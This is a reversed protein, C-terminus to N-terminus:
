PEAGAPAGKRSRQGSMAEPAASATEPTASAGVTVIVLRQLWPIRWALARVEDPAIAAFDDAHADIYGPKEGAAMELTLENALDAQRILGRLYEGALAAKAEAVEDDTPPREALEKFQQRVLDVAGDVAAPAAGFSGSLETMFSYSDLTSGISYAIGRKERIEHYLRSTFASGGLTYNLLEAALRERRDLGPLAVGFVVQALSSNMAVDRRAARTPPPPAIPLPPEGQRLDAFVKDVLPGLEAPTIDGVASLSLRSRVAIRKRYAALDDPTLAAISQLTGAVPRARPHEGFGLKDYALFGTAEPDDADRDIEDGIQDRVEGVTEFDFRPEAVALRLLEIAKDRDPNLVRVTGRLSELRAEVNTETGLDNWKGTYDDHNLDGASEFFMEAALHALGEKGPPDEASGGAFRFGLTLVPTGHDEVLWVRLGRPTVFETAAAHAPPAAAASLGTLVILVAPWRCRTPFGVAM